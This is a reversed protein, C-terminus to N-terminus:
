YHSALVAFYAAMSLDSETEPWVSLYEQLYSYFIVM